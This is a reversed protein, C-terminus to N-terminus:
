LSTLAADTVASLQTVPSQCTVSGCNLSSTMSLVTQSPTLWTSSLERPRDCVCMLMLMLQLSLCVSISGDCDVSVRVRVRVWVVALRMVTAQHYTAVTNLHDISSSM